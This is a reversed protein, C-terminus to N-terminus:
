SIVIFGETGELQKELYVKIREMAEIEWYGGDAEFLACQIGDYNDQKMRFIFESEPQDVEVFTRFPKLLVPNPVIAEDKSAIGTKVTAKQTVGDDGYEAVSGSEVTGAFKLILARETSPEDIFKSQLNICFLEHNIFKNFDFHPVKATVEAVYERRREADLESYMRVKTPSVVHIIMKGCMEDIGSKIYDMLSSLTNMEIVSAKPNFSIRELPKDSYVEGDVHVINPEAMGVLYKLAEKIM